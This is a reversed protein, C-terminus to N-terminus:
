EYTFLMFVRNFADEDATSFFEWDWDHRLGRSVYQIAEREAKDRMISWFTKDGFRLKLAQNYGASIDSMPWKTMVVARCKNDRLDAGRIMRTSVIIQKDTRLVDGDIEIDTPKIKRVDEISKEMFDTLSTNISPKTGDDENKSKAFDVFVDPRNIIGEAYKKAPTLVLIKGEGPKGTIQDIKIKLQDLIFNMTNNYVKRFEPSQWSTHNVRLLNPKICKLKGPSEKRGEVFDVIYNENNIGFLNGLVFNSHITGSTIIINESSKKFLEELLNDPYPVFVKIIKIEDRKGEEVSISAKEKYRLVTALDVM